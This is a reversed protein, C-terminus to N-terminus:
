VGATAASQLPRVGGHMDARSKNKYFTSLKSNL